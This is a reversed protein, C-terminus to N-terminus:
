VLEVLKNFIGRERQGYHGFMKNEQNRDNDGKNLSHTTYKTVGSFLGWLNDGKEKLEGNLDVYFRTMRNRTVTSVQEEDNLDVEKAINFLLKTVWDEDKKNIKTESLRTINNFMEKEEEMVLELGRCIEDIRMVMNKTHRVKTDLNRFAAYFTNMCSITINSPGFALSTSGDFSNVGTIFGEIRDTGLKLDNSKLQIYVKEGDGFYGGKHIPLGIQQSVKDLLEVMQHNQYPFYGEGHVSLVQNIDERIIAKSKPVIIGSETTLSEERVTWNLGVQDLVKEIRNQESM